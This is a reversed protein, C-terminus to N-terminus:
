SEILQKRIWGSKGNIMEVQLYDGHEDLLKLPAGPVFRGVVASGPSPEMTVDATKVKGIGDHKAVRIQTGPMLQFPRGTQLTYLWQMLRQTENTRKAAAQESARHLESAQVVRALVGLLCASGILGVGMTAQSLEVFGIAGVVIALIVLISSM